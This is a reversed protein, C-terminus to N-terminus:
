PQAGAAPIVHIVQTPVSRLTETGKLVATFANTDAALQLDGLRQVPLIVIHDSEVRFQDPAQFHVRAQVSATRIMPIDAQVKVEASYDRVNRVKQYVAHLMQNPTRSVPWAASCLAVIPLLALLIFRTQRM